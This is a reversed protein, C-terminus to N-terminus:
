IRAASDGSAESVPVELPSPEMAGPANGGLLADCAAYAISDSATAQPNSDTSSNYLLCASSAKFFANLSDFFQVEGLGECRVKQAKTSSAGHETNSVSVAM